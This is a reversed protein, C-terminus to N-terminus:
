AARYRELLSRLNLAFNNKDGLQKIPADSHAPRDIAQLLNLQTSTAGVILWKEGVEVILIRERPGIAHSDITRVISHSITRRTETRKILKGLGLLVAVILLLWGASAALHTGLANPTASGYSSALCPAASLM